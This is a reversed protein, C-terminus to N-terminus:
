SFLIAVSFVARAGFRDATWGSAPIFVALSFISTIALKLTLPSTGIDAAIAPLSTAIVTSDMNEMFWACAVILPILREKCRRPQSSNVTPPAPAPRGQYALGPVPDIFEDHFRDQPSFDM